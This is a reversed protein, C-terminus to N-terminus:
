CFSGQAETDEYCYCARGPTIVFTENQSSHFLITTAWYALAKAVEMISQKGTFPHKLRIHQFTNM